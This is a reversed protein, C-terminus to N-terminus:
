DREEVAFYLGGAEHPRATFKAAERERAACAHCRLVRVRWHAEAEPTM